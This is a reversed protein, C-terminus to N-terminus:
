IIRRVAERKLEKQKRAIIASLVQVDISGRKYVLEELGMNLTPPAYQSFSVNPFIVLGSFLAICAFLRKM